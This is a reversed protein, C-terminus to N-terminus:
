LATHVQMERLNTSRKYRRNDSRPLLTEISPRVEEPRELHAEESEKVVLGCTAQGVSLM